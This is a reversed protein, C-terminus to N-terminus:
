EERLLQGEENLVYTTMRFHFRPGSHDNIIQLNGGCEHQFNHAIGSEQEFTIPATSDSWCVLCRANSQRNKLIELLDTLEAVVRRYGVSDAPGRYIPDVDVQLAQRQAAKELDLAM